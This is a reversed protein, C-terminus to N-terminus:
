CLVSVTDRARERETEREVKPRQRRHYYATITSLFLQFWLATHAHTNSYYHGRRKKERALGMGWVLSQLHNSERIPLCRRAMIGCYIAM